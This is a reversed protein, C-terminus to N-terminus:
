NVFYFQTNWRLMQSRYRHFTTLRACGPQKNGHLVSLKSNPLAKRTPTRHNLHLRDRQTASKSTDLSMNKGLSM